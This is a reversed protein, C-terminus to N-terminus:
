QEGWEKETKIFFFYYIPKNNADNMLLNIFNSFKNVYKGRKDKRQKVDERQFFIGQEIWLDFFNCRCFVSITVIQLYYMYFCFSIWNKEFKIIQNPVTTGTGLAVPFVLKCFM